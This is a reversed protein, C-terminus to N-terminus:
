VFYSGVPLEFEDNCAPAIIKLTSNKYQKRIIKRTYYISLNQLAVHKYLSKLGLEQSLNLM